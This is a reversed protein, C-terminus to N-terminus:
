DSLDRTVYECMKRLLNMDRVANFKRAFLYHEPLSILMEFDEGSFTRPGTGERNNWDIYRLNGIGKEMSYVTDCFPSAMIATQLFVESSALTYSYRKQYQAHRETLYYAFANTISFFQSGAFIADNSRKLHLFKQAYVLAHNAYRVIRNCRYDKRQVLLHYYNVKYSGTSIADTAYWAANFELFNKGDHKEFFTNIEDMTKIPLDQGSLLHCYDFGDKLAAEMLRLECDIESYTGWYLPKRDIFSLKAKNASFANQSFTESKADIHVYINNREDDLCTILKQLQEWNAHAMILFAHKM